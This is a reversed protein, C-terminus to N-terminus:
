DIIRKSITDNEPKSILTISVEIEEHSFILIIPILEPLLM